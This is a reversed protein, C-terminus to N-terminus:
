CLALPHSATAAMAPDAICPQKRTAATAIRPILVDKHRCLVPMSTQPVSLGMQDTNVFNGHPHDVVSRLMDLM